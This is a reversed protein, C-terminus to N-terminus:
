AKGRGLMRAQLALAAGGVKASFEGYRGSNGVRARARWIVLLAIVIGAVPAAYQLVEFTAFHPARGEITLFLGRLVLAIMLSSLLPPLRAHRHSVPSGAIAVVVLAFLIPTLWSTLRRNAEARFLGPMSKFYPDNAPPNLVYSLPRDKPQYSVGAGSDPTLSDLNFAYTTFRVVSVAGDPNRRHVEGDRLVLISQDTLKSVAGSKAYYVLESKEDRQDAVFIGSLQGGARREAVQVYLGKEIRTFGGEQIATTLMDGRAASIVERTAQRGAPTITSDLAFAALAAIGALAMAPKLITVRGAGAAGVVVLESDNNMTSLSQALGIVVAFSLVELVAVPVSLSAIKLFAIFSGASDSIVNVRGLAQTTWVIASVAALYSLFMWFARRFIYREILNM